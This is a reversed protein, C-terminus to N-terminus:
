HLSFIQESKKLNYYGSRETNKEPMPTRHPVVELVANERSADYILSGDANRGPAAGSTVRISQAQAQSVNYMTRACQGFNGTWDTDSHVAPIPCDNYLVWSFMMASLPKGFSTILNAISPDSWLKGNIMSENHFVDGERRINGLISTIHTEPNVPVMHYISQSLQAIQSESLGSEKEL